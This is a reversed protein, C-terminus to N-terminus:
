SKAGAQRRELERQRAADRSGKLPPYSLRRKRVARPEIRYRPRERLRCCALRSLLQEVERSIDEPTDATWLLVLADRVRRWCQTFSLALPTLGVRQAAQTMGARIVNYAIGGAYLEKRAMDASKVHLLDMELTSKVYRLDLEVHWREGYLTCLAEVPYRTQDVLTTFWYLDLPRFGDREVRVAILRGAIPDAPLDPVCQDNPSPSWELPVDARTPLSRRLLARARARTLRLLVALGQHHAAQVVSYVGFNEDGVCVSGPQLQTLVRRVLVQESEHLSGEALDLLAGTWLNFAGTVRMEVWYTPGYQNAHQGYEQVLDDSPYLTITSGDLLAVPHGLWLATEGAADQIAQASEHLVGQLVSVPLRQRAQCFASSNESCVRESLPTGHRDDLHDVAGSRVHSVVADCSHDANLRQFVLCWVVVAPTFVREYFCHPARAIRALDRIRQVSVVKQFIPLCHQITPLAKPQPATVM